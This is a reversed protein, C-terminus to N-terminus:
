RRLFKALELADPIDMHLTIKSWGYDGARVIEQEIGHAVAKPTFRPVIPGDAADPLCGYTKILRQVARAGGEQGMRGGKIGCGRFMGYGMYVHELEVLEDIVTLLHRALSVLGQHM